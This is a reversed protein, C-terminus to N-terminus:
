FSENLDLLFMAFAGKERGYETLKCLINSIICFSDSIDDIVIVRRRYCQSQRNVRLNDSVNLKLQKIFTFRSNFDILKTMCSFRSSHLDHKFQRTM